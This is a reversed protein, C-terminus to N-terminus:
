VAAPVVELRGDVASGFFRGVGLEVLAVGVISVVERGLALLIAVRLVPM